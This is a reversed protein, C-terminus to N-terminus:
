RPALPGGDYLAESGSGMTFGGGHIWFLVPRRGADAAPTYVNLYLCDEDRPGSAAMGPIPHTGQIASAAFQTAARVGAWPEAPQPACFRLAGVPPRAFPIGLFSQHKERQLGEVRGAATDVTVGM